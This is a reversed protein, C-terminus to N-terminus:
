PPKVTREHSDSHGWTVGVPKPRQQSAHRCLSTEHKTAMALACRSCASPQHGTAPPRPVDSSPSTQFGVTSAVSVGVPSRGRRGPTVTLQDSPPIPACLVCCKAPRGRSIACPVCLVRVCTSRTARYSGRKVPARRDDVESGLKCVSRMIVAVQHLSIDTSTNRIDPGCTWLPGRGPPTSPHCRAEPM